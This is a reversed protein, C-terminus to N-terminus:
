VIRRFLPYNLSQYDPSKCFWCFKKQHGKRLTGEACVKASGFHLFPQFQFSKLLLTSFGCKDAVLCISREKFLQLISLPGRIVKLRSVPLLKPLGSLTSLLQYRNNNPSYLYSDYGPCVIISAPPKVLNEHKTLLM